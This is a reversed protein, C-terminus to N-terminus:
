KHFEPGQKHENGGSRNSDSDSETEDLASDNKGSGIGELLKPLCFNCTPHNYYPRTQFSMYNATSPFSQHYGFTTSPYPGPLFANPPPHPWYMLPVFTSAPQPPLMHHYSSHNGSPNTSCTALAPNPMHCTDQSIQSPMSHFAAMAAYTHASPYGILGFQTAASASSIPTSQQSPPTKQLNHSKISANAQKRGKSKAPLTKKTLNHPEDTGQKFM